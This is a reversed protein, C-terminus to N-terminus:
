LPREEETLMYLIHKGWIFYVVSVLNANHPRKRTNTQHPELLSGVLFFRINEIYLKRIASHAVTKTSQRIGNASLKM